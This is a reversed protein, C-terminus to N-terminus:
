LRALILKQLGTMRIVSRINIRSCTQSLRTVWHTEGRIGLRLSFKGDDKSYKYGRVESGPYTYKAEGTALDFATLPQKPSHFSFCLGQDVAFTWRKRTTTADLNKRWLLMGNNVDRCELDTRQVAPHDKDAVPGQDSERTIWVDTVAYRGWVRTSGGSGGKPGVKAWRSPRANEVWQLSNIGTAERDHSLANGDIGGDFHTWNDFRPLVRSLLRKGFAAPM